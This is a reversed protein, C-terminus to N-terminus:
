SKLANLGGGALMRSVEVEADLWDALEAGAAFGRREARFYAETEIMRRVDMDCVQANVPGNGKRAGPKASAAQATRASSKTRSAAGAIADSKM